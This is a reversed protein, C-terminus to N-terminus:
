WTLASRLISLLGPSSLSIAKDMAEDVGKVSHDFWFDKTHKGKKYCVLKVPATEKGWELSFTFSTNIDSRAMRRCVRGEKGSFHPCWSDHTVGVSLGGCSFHNGSDVRDEVRLFMPNTEKYLKWDAEYKEQRAQPDARRVKEEDDVWEAVFVLQDGEKKFTKTAVTPPECECYEENGCGCEYDDSDITTYCTITGDHSIDPKRDDADIYHDSSLCPWGDMPSSFDYFRFEYPCAWHCGDVAVIMTAADFTYDVWCFAHGAEAEEPLHDRREGTDLQIVTQGQYDEGYILYDHGDPHDEVWLFPFSSYNRSVKIIVEEGSSVSGTMYYWCGPKARENNLNLTYKGSPSTEVTPEM